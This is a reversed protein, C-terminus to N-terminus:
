AQELGVVELEQDWPDELELLPGLQEPGALGLVRTTHDVGPVEDLLTRLKIVSIGRMAPICLLYNYNYTIMIVM